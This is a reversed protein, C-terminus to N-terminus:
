SGLAADILDGILLQNGQFFSRASFTYKEGHATFSIDSTAEM